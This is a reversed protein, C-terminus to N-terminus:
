YGQCPWPQTSIHRPAKLGCVSAWKADLDKFPKAAVAEEETVGKDVMAAVRDRATAPM